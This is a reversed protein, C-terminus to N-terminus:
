KQKRHLGGDHGRCLKNNVISLVINRVIDETIRHDSHDAQRCPSGRPWAVSLWTWAHTDLPTQFGGTTEVARKEILWCHLLSLRGRLQPKRESRVSSGECTKGCSSPESVGPRRAARLPKDCCM